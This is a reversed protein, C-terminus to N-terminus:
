FLLALTKVLLELFFQIYLKWLSFFYLNRCSSVSEFPVAAGCGEWMGQGSLLEQGKSTM